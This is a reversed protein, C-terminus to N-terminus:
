YAPLTGLEATKGSGSAPNPNTDEIWPTAKNWGTGVTTTGSNVARSDLRHCNQASAWNSHRLGAWPAPIASNQTFTNKDEWTNHNTDLCNTIM